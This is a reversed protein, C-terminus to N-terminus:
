PAPHISWCTGNDKADRLTSDLAIRHVSGRGAAARIGRSRLEVVIRLRDSGPRPSDCAGMELTSGDITPSVQCARPSGEDLVLKAFGRVVRWPSLSRSFELRLRTGGERHRCLVVRRVSPKEGVVFRLLLGHGPEPARECTRPDIKGSWATDQLSPGGWLGYVGPVLPELPQMEITSEYGRSTAGRRVAARTAIDRRAGGGESWGESWPDCRRAMLNHAVSRLRTETVPARQTRAILLVSGGPEVSSLDDPVTQVIPVEAPGVRDEGSVNKPRRAGPASGEEPSCGDHCRISTLALVLAAALGGCLRLRGSPALAM